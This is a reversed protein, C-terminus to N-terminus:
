ASTGARRMMRCSPSSASTTSASATRVAAPRTTLLRGRAAPRAQQHRLHVPRRPREQGQRRRPARFQRLPSRRRRHAAQPLARRAARPVRLGKEPQAPDRVDHATFGEPGNYSSGGVAGVYAYGKHVEVLSGGGWAATRDHGLLKFGQSGRFHTLGDANEREDPNAAPPAYAQLQALAARQGVSLQRGLKQAYGSLHPACPGPSLSKEATAFTRRM